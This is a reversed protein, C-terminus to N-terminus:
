YDIYQKLYLVCQLISIVILFSISAIRVSYSQYTSLALGGLSFYAVALSAIVILFSPKRVQKM